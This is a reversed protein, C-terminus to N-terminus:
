DASANAPVLRVGIVDGFPDMWVDATVRSESLDPRVPVGMAVLSSVPLTVRVVSGGGNFSLVDSAQVLGPAKGAETKRAQAQASRAKAGTRPNDTGPNHDREISPATSRIDPVYHPSIVEPAGSGNAQEHQVSGSGFRLYLLATSLVLFLTAASVWVWKWPFAFGIAAHRKGANERFTDLLEKEVTPPAELHMTSVRLDQLADELRTTEAMRLGCGPCNNVHEQILSVKSARLMWGDGSIRGQSDLLIEEFEECTM